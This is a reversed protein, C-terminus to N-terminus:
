RGDDAEPKRAEWRTKYSRVEVLAELETPLNGYCLVRSPAIREIMEHFGYAFASRESAKVGVTSIAVLSHRAIGSFSFGYSECGAWSITPIVQFGLSAWYAGCWRSRYM